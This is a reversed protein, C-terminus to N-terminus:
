ADPEGSFRTLNETFPSLGDGQQPVSGWAVRAYGARPSPNRTSAHTSRTVPSLCGQVMYGEGRVPFAVGRDDDRRGLVHDRAMKRHSREGNGRLREGHVPAGGASGEGGGRSGFIGSDEPLGAIELASVGRAPSLRRCM